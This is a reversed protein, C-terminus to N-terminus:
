DLAPQLSASTIEWGDGGVRPRVRYWGTYHRNGGAMRATLRVPVEVAEPPSIKDLALPEDSEIRLSQLGELSRLNADDPVPSPRGGTWLADAEARTGPLATLYRHVVSVAASFAEDRAHRQAATEGEAPPTDDAAVTSAAAEPDVAEATAQPDPTRHCSCGALGAALAIALGFRTFLLAGHRITM